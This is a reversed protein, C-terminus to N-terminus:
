QRRCTTLYGSRDYADLNGDRRIIYYEGTPSNRVVLKEDQQVLESIDVRGGRYATRAMLRNSQQYLEITGSTNSFEFSWTALSQNATTSSSSTSSSREDYTSSSSSSGGSSSTGVNRDAEQLLEDLSPSGGPASTREEQRNNTADPINIPTTQSRTDTQSRQNQLEQNRRELEEIKKRQEEIIREQETSRTRSDNNSSERQNISSASENEIDRLIDDGSKPQNNIAEEVSNTDKQEVKDKIKDWTGSDRLYKSGFYAIPALILLFIAFRACGTMKYKARM